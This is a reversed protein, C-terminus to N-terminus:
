PPISGKKGYKMATKEILDALTSGREMELGEEPSEALERLTTFYRAKIRL